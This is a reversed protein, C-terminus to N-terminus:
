TDSTYNTDWELSEPPPWYLKFGGAPVHLMDETCTSLYITTSFDCVGGTILKFLRGGSVGVGFNQFKGLTVVDQM